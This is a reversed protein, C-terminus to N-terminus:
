GGARVGPEERDLLGFCYGVRYDQGYESASFGFGLRASSALEGGAARLRDRWRSPQGVRLRRAGNGGDDGPRMALVLIQAWRRLAELTGAVVDASPLDEM